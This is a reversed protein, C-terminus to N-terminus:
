LAVRHRLKQSAELRDGFGSCLRVAAGATSSAELRKVDEGFKKRDTNRIKAM